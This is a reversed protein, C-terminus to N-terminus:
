EELQSLLKVINVQKTLNGFMDTYMIKTNKNSFTKQCIIWHEQSELTSCGLSCNVNNGFNNIVSRMTRSRMAFLLSIENNTLSSSKMYEQSEFTKYHINKVKSHSEKIKNLDEFVRKRAKNEINKKFEYRATTKAENENIEEGLYQFSISFINFHLKCM